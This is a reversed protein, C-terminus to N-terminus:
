KQNLDTEVVNSVEFQWKEILTDLKFCIEAFDSNLDLTKASIRNGSMMYDFDPFIEEDTKAYLLMGSVNGLGSVDKNKVYTFIQYLNNSHLKTSDFLPNRQMSKEYYKADIILIKGCHEIMIDSKMQPLFSSFGDDVNWNIYGASVNFEPYHKRYYELIFREYLQPMNQIINFHSIKHSGSEETQLMRKFVFYCINILMKYTAKNRNYKINSWRFHRLDLTDVDNFFPLIKKLDKKRYSHVLPSRILFLSTTKLVQNLCSNMSFDDYECVLQKKLLSQQRFSASLEIKGRLSSLSESKSIYERGLGKKIQNAIGKALIAALLDEVFDFDESEIDAYDGKQLVQFTYALMYYLNKIQISSLKRKEDTM